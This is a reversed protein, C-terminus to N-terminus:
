GPFYPLATPKKVEFCGGQAYPSGSDRLGPPSFLGQSPVLFATRPTLRHVQARWQEDPEPVRGDQGPSRKEVAATVQPRRKLTVKPSFSEPVGEPVKSETTEYRSLMCLVQTVKFCMRCENDSDEGARFCRPSCPNQKDQECQRGLARFRTVFVHLSVHTNRLLCNEM